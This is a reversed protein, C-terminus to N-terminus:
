AARRWGGPSAPYSFRYLGAITNRCVEVLAPILHRPENLVTTPVYWVILHLNADWAAVHPRGGSDVYSYGGTGLQRVPGLNDEGDRHKEYAGQAPQSTFIEAAVIVAGANGYSGLRVTCSLLTSAPSRNMWAVPQAQPVGAQRRLPTADAVTCLNGPARYVVPNTSAPPSASLSTSPSASPSASSPASPSASLLGGAGGVDASPTPGPAQASRGGCGGSWLGLAALVAVVALVRSASTGSASM